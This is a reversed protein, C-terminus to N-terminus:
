SKVMSYLQEKAESWSAERIRSGSEGVTCKWERLKSLESNKLTRVLVINGKGDGASIWWGLPDALYPGLSYCRGQCLRMLDIPCPYGMDRFGNSELWEVILIKNERCFLIRNKWKPSYFKIWHTTPDSTYQGLSYVPSGGLQESKEIIESSKRGEIMKFGNEELFEMIGEKTEWAELEYKGTMRKAVAENLHIM